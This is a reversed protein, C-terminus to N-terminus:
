TTMCVCSNIAATMDVSQNAPKGEVTNVVGASYLATVSTCKDSILNYHNRSQGHVELCLQVSKLEQDIIYETPLPISLPPDGSGQLDLSRIYM